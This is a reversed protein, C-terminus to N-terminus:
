RLEIKASARVAALDDNMKKGILFGKIQETLKALEPKPNLKKDELYFIFFGNRLALPRSYEGKKLSRIVGGVNYPMENAVMYGDSGEKFLKFREDNEKIKGASISAAADGADKENPSLLFKIKYTSYEEAKINNDYFAKVVESTVGAQIEATKKNIYLQSLVEREMGKLAEKADNGYVTLALNAVLVKNIYRDVVVARDVGQSIGSELESDFIEYGNVVAAVKSSQQNKTVPEGRASVSANAGKNTYMAYAAASIALGVVAVIGVVVTRSVPFFKM